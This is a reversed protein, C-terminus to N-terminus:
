GMFSVDDGRGKEGLTCGATNNDDCCCMLDMTAHRDRISNTVCLTSISVSARVKLFSCFMSEYKKGIAVHFRFAAILIYGPRQRIESFHDLIRKMLLNKNDVIVNEPAAKDSISSCCYLQYTASRPDSVITPVLLIFGWLASFRFKPRTTMNITKRFTRHHFEIISFERLNIPVCNPHTISSKKPQM